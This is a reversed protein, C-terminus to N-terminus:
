EFLQDYYDALYDQLKQRAYQKRSIITKLKEGTDNAIEQLTEGELENRVFVTRQAEPLEELAEDMIAWFEEPDLDIELEEEVEAIWDLSDSDLPYSPQREQRRYSDTLRNRTAQYLWALPNDIPGLDLSTAFSSWVEQLVDEAEAESVRDSAFATLEESYRDLYSQFQDERSPKM